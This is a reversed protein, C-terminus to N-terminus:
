GPVSIMDRRLDLLEGLESEPPAKYGNVGRCSPTPALWPFGVDGGLDIGPKGVRFLDLLSEFDLLRVFEEEVDSVLSEDHRTVGGPDGGEEFFEVGRGTNTLYRIGERM